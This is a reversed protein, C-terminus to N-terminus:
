GDTTGPHAVGTSGTDSGGSRRRHVISLAGVTAFSLLAIVVEFTTVSAVTVNPNKAWAAMVPVWISLAVFLVLGERVWM